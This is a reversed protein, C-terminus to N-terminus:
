EEEDDLTQIYACVKEFEKEDDINRFYGDDGEEVFEMVIVEAEDDDENESIPLLLAYTKEEFDVVDYIECKLLEGADGIVEVYQPEKDQSEKM